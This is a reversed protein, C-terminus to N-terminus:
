AFEYSLPDPPELRALDIDPLGPEAIDFDDWGWPPEVVESGGRSDAGFMALYEIGRRLTEPDDKLQGLAVNCNFCLIGRRRGTAHDHDVHEAPALRCLACLGDQAATLERVEEPTLGHTRKFYDRSGRESQCARCYSCYGDRSASNRNWEGFPKIESCGPCRKYGTPVNIKERVKKGERERRARYTVKDRKAYCERCYFSLGDPNAKNNRFDTRPKLYGCDPCRKRQGSFSDSMETM